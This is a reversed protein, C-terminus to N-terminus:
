PSYLAVLEMSVTCYIQVEIIIM